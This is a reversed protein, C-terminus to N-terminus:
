PREEEGWLRVAMLSGVFGLLSVVVLLMIASGEGRVADLVAIGGVTVFVFGDLAVVRDWTTPGAVMRVLTLLAAIMLLTGTIVFVVAM